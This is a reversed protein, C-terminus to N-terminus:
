DGLVSRKAGQAVLAFVPESLTGVRPPSGDRRHVVCAHPLGAHDPCPQASRRVIRPCRGLLDRRMRTLHLLVLPRGGRRRSWRGFYQAARERSQLGTMDIGCYTGPHASHTHTIMRGPFAPVQNLCSYRNGDHHQERHQDPPAGGNKERLEAPMEAQTSVVGHFIQM